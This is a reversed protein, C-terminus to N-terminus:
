LSAFIFNPCGQAPFLRALGVTGDAAVVDVTTM